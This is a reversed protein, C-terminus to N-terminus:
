SAPGIIGISLPWKENPYMITIAPERTDGLGRVVCRLTVPKKDLGALRPTFLWTIDQTHDMATEQFAELVRDRRYKITQGKKLEEEFPTIYDWVKTTVAVPHSIGANAAATSVDKLWHKAIAEQRSCRSRSPGLTRSVTKASWFKGKQTRYGERNMKDAITRLPRWAELVGKRIKWQNV